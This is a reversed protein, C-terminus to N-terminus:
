LGPSLSLFLWPGERAAQPACCGAPSDDGAAFGVGGGSGKAVYGARRCFVVVHFVFLLEPQASLKGEPGSIVFLTMHARYM